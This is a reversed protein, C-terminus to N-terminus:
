RSGNISNTLKKPKTKKPPHPPTYLINSTTVPDWAPPAPTPRARPPASPGGAGRVAFFFSLLGPVAIARGAPRPAPPLPGLPLGPPAFRAPPPPPPQPGGRPAYFSPRVFFFWDGGVVWAFISLVLFFEGAM